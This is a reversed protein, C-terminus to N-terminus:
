VAGPRSDGFQSLAKLLTKFEEPINGAADKVRAVIRNLDAYADDLGVNGFANKVPDTGLDGLVKDLLSLADAPTKLEGALKEWNRAIAALAELLAIEDDLGVLGAGKKILPLESM